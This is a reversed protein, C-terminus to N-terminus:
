VGIFSIFLPEGDFGPRDARTREVFASAAAAAGDLTLPERWTDGAVDVDLADALVRACEGDDAATAPRSWADIVPAFGLGALRKRDRRRPEHVRLELQGDVAAVAACWVEEDDEAAVMVTGRLRRAERVAEVLEV